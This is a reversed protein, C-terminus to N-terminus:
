ASASLTDWAQSLADRVSDPKYGNGTGGPSGTVTVGAKRARETEERSRRDAEAKAAALAAKRESELLRERVQPNAYISREYAEAMADRLPTNPNSSRLVNLLGKFEPTACVDDFHPRLRQGDPGVEDALSDIVQALQQRQATEQIQSVSQGLQQQYQLVQQLQHNTQVQAPDTYYEGDSSQTKLDVGYESALGTLLAAKQQPTGMRLTALQQMLVNYVEHPQRGTSAILAEYPQTVQKFSTGYQAQETLQKREDSLAQTKRTYDANFEQVISYVFDKHEDPMADFKARQEPKWRAMSPFKKEEVPKSDEDGVEHQEVTTPATGSPKGSESEAAGAPPAEASAASDTPESSATESVPEAIQEDYAKSIEEYLETM